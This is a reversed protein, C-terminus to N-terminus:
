IAAGNLLHNYTFESDKMCHSQGYFPQKVVCSLKVCLLPFKITLMSVLILLYLFEDQNNSIIKEAYM